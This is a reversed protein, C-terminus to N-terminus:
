PLKAGGSEPPSLRLKEYLRRAADLGVTAFLNTLAESGEEKEYHWMSFFNEKKVYQDVARMGEKYIAEDGAEKLNLRFQGVICDKAVVLKEKCAKHMYNSGNPTPHFGKPDSERLKDKCYYCAVPTRLGVRYALSLSREEESCATVMENVRMGIFLSKPTFPKSYGSDFLSAHGDARISIFRQAVAAVPEGMVARCAGRAVLLM